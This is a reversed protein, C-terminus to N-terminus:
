SVHTFQPTGLDYVKEGLINKLKNEFSQRLHWPFIIFTSSPHSFDKLVKDEPVIPIWTGPTTRGWKDSNIEGIMAIEQETIKALQLWINGKTSAGLGVIPGCKRRAHLFKQLAKVKQEIAVPWQLLKNQRQPSADEALLRALSPDEQWPGDKRAIFLLWSGGNTATKEARHIIMGVKRVLYQWQKLDYFALHEHCLGDALNREVMEGLAMCEVMWLGRPHLLSHIQSAVELPRNLDYFMALTSILHFQGARDHSFLHQGFFDPLWRILGKESRRFFSALPEVAVLNQQGKKEAFHLFTGDNAGIDLIGDDPACKLMGQARTWLDELHKKMQENQGSRYGYEGTFFLQPDYLYASQFLACEPNQCQVFDLPGWDIGEGIQPFKGAQAMPGWTVCPKLQTSACLRCATLFPPSLIHDQSRPKM